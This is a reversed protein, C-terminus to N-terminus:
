LICLPDMMFYDCNRASHSSRRKRATMNTCQIDHSFYTEQKNKKIINQFLKHITYPSRIIQKICESFVFNLVCWISIDNYNKINNRIHSKIM